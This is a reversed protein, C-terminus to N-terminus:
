KYINSKNIIKFIRTAEPAPIQVVSVAGVAVYTTVTKVALAAVDDGEGLPIPENVDAWPKIVLQQFGIADGAAWSAREAGNDAIM